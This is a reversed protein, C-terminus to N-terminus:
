SRVEHQVIVNQLGTDLRIVNLKMGNVAVDLPTLILKDGKDLGVNIYVQHKGQHLVGVKVIQLRQQEDLLWVKNDNRLALRPIIV